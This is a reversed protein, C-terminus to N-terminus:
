KALKCSGGNVIFIPPFVPIIKGSETDFEAVKYLTFESPRFNQVNAQNVSYDFARYAADDNLQILFNADFGTLDDKVCYVPYIM